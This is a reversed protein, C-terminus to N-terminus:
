ELVSNKIIEDGEVIETPNNSTLEFSAVFNITTYKDVFERFYKEDGETKVADKPQISSKIKNPLNCGPTKDYYYIKKGDNEYPYRKFKGVQIQNPYDSENGGSCGTPM